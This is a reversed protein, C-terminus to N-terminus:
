LDNVYKVQKLTELESESFMAEIDILIIMRDDFMVVGSIYSSDVLSNFNVAEKIESKSIRIVKSVSDVILGIKKNRIKVIITRKNIYDESEIDIGFRIRLDVIPIVEGRLNIIGKLYEPSKPLKKIEPLRIVEIIDLIDVGYEEDLVKFSILQMLELNKQGATEKATDTGM